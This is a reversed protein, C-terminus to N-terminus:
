KAKPSLFVNSLKRKESLLFRLAFHRQVNKSVMLIKVRSLIDGLVAGFYQPVRLIYVAVSLILIELLVHVAYMYLVDGLRKTFRCPFTPACFQKFGNAAKM